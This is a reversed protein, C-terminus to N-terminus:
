TLSPHAQIMGWGYKNQATGILSQGKYQPRGLQSDRPFSPRDVNTNDTSVQLVQRVAKAILKKSDLSFDPNDQSM